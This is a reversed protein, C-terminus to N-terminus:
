IMPAPGTLGGGVFQRAITAVLALGFTAFIIFFVILGWATQKEPMTGKKKAEKQEPTNQGLIFEVASQPRDEKDSSPSDSM